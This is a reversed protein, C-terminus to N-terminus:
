LIIIKIELILSLIAFSVTILRSYVCVEQSTRSCREYTRGRLWVFRGSGSVDGEGGERGGERGRM